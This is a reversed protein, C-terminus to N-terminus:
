ENMIFAFKHMKLNKKLNTKNIFNNLVSHIIYSNLYYM